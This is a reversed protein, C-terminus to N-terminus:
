FWVRISPRRDTADEMTRFIMINVPRAADASADRVIGDLGLARLDAETLPGTSVGDGRFEIGREQAARYISEGSVAIDYDSRRGQDFPDGTDASRGTVASGQFAMDLDPYQERMRDRYQSAYRQFSQFDGFGHPVTRRDPSRSGGGQGSGARGARAAEGTDEQGETVNNVKRGRPRRGPTDGDGGPRRPRPAM